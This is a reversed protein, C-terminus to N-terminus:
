YETLRGLQRHLVPTTFSLVRILSLVQFARALPSIAAHHRIVDNSM